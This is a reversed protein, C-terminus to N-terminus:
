FGYKAGRVYSWLVSKLAKLSRGLEHFSNVQLTFKLVYRPRLYFRLYSSYIARRIQEPTLDTSIRPPAERREPNLTYQLWYDIGSAKKISGYLQSNPTAFTASIQVYDLPLSCMLQQTKKITQRTEGINGIMFYGFAQIRNKKTLAITKKIQEITINKKINKLMEQDGSEIGYYIRVCGAKKLLSLMGDDVLDVRTRFSWRVCIKRKLLENSIAVVRAQDVSFLADFIDIEKIGFRQVCEEMEDVVRKASMARYPISESDCYVCRFPCGRSTLLATFPKAKSIFSYYKELPLLHRAAFPSQDLDHLPASQRTKIVNKGDRFIVGDVSRLDNGVRLANILAPLTEEADGIIGYDFCEHTFTEYPYLSLHLGGILIAANTVKKVCCCWELVCGFDVTTVSFGVLDPNYSGIIKCVDHKTLHAASADIIRVEVDCAELIAAVTALSLPPIHGLHNKNESVSVGDDYEQYSPFILIVKLPNKDVKLSM